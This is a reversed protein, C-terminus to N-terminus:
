LKKPNGLENRIQEYTINPNYVFITALLELTDDDYEKHHQYSILLIEVLAVLKFYDEVNLNDMNIFIKRLRLYTANLEINNLRDLEFFLDIKKRLPFIFENAFEIKENNNLGETNEHMYAVLLQKCIKADEFLIPNNMVSDLMQKQTVNKKNKKSM